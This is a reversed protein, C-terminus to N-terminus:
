FFIDTGTEGLFEKTWYVENEFYRDPIECLDRASHFLDTELGRSIKNNIINNQPQHPSCTLDCM